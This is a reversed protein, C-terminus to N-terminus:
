FRLVDFLIREVTPARVTTGSPLEAFPDVVNSVDAVAWWRSGVDYAERGLLPWNTVGVTVFSDTPDQPVRQRLDVFPPAIPQRSFADVPQVVATLTLRSDTTISM